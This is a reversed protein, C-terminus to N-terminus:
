TLTVQHFNTSLHSLYTASISQLMQKKSLIMEELEINLQTNQKKVQEKIISNFKSTKIGFFSLYFIIFIIFVIVIVILKFINKIM